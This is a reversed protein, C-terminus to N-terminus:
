SASVDEPEVAPAIRPLRLVFTAGQGLASQVDISGGLTKTVLNYVINLGLGSGGKGLKTTFFPDFVRALHNPAIGIGNDQVTLELMSDDLYRASITITGNVRGDFGHVRANNILNTLVQGLPGPYSDMAINDPVTNVVTHSTKRMTPGLTLLIEHVTDFLRFPRRNVSSQDVAVQKFSSVLEAAQRLGSMLIASGEHVGGLYQELRSKTLGKALDENFTRTQDQLTSAVTLSNGIPTNLEHAIGAVMSGLASMKESRVLESQTATLRDLAGSLEQTREAVRQELSANLELINNEYQQKATIDDWALIMLTENQLTVLKGSIACLIPTNGDGSRLWAVFGAVEQHLDLQALLRDRDASDQWLGMESGDLGEIDEKSRGFLQTWVRNIDLLRIREAKRSVSLAVPSAEFIAAFKAQSQGLAQETRRREALEQILAINKEDREAILSALDQRMTDLGRALRGIEDNRDVAIPEALEGRALRLAGDQLVRLPSLIRRNFLWWIVAFSVLVQAALAAAMKVLDAMFANRIRESSGEIVLKGVPAGNYSVLREEQLLHKTLGDAKFRRVFVEKYEDILTVSVVDPNRMVADVLENAVDRDVNWIAVALGRSLVDAYQQMPVRVQLHISEDLRHINQFYALLLAPLLIALGAALSLTQRLSLGPKLKRVQATSHSM